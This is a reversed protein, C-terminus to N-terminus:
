IKEFDFTLLCINLDTMTKTGPSATFYNINVDIYGNLSDTVFEYMSSNYVMCNLPFSNILLQGGSFNGFLAKSEIKLIEDDTINTTAERSIAVSLLKVKYKGYFPCPVTKSTDVPGVIPIQFLVM